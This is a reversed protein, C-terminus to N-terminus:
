ADDRHRRADVLETRESETLVALVHAAAEPDLLRYATPRHAGPLARLANTLSRWRTRVLTAAATNLDGGALAATLVSLPAAARSVPETATM